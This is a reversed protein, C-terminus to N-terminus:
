NRVNGYKWNNGNFLGTTYQLQRKQSHDGEKSFKSMCALVNYSQETEVSHTILAIKTCYFSFPLTSAKYAIEMKWSNNNFSSVRFSHPNPVGAKGRVVINCYM